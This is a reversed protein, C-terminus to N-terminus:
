RNIKERVGRASHTLRALALVLALSFRTQCGSVCRKMAGHCAMNYWVSAFVWDCCHKTVDYSTIQTKFPLGSLPVVVSETAGRHQASIATAKRQNQLPLM